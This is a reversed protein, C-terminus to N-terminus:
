QLCLIITLIYLNEAFLVFLGYLHTYVLLTSSWVYNILSWPTKKNLFRLLFYVSLVSTFALLSYM